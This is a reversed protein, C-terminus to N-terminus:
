SKSVKGRHGAVKLYYFARITDGLMYYIRRWVARSHFECNLEVPAEAIRYGLQHASALMEIDFAFGKLQLKPFIDNLVQRHYLKLGVQTDSLRLNFLIRVLMRYCRSLLIRLRSVKISSLPHFKSAILVDVHNSGNYSLFRPIQAPPYTITRM